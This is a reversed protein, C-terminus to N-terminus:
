DDNAKYYNKSYGVPLIDLLADLSPVDKVAYYKGSTPKRGVIQATYNKVVTRTIGDEFERQEVIEENLVYYCDMVNSNGTDTDETITTEPVDYIGDRTILKHAQATESNTDASGNIHRSTAYIPLNRLNKWESDDCDSGRAVGDTTPFLSLILEVMNDQLMKLDELFVPQGGESFILRNM